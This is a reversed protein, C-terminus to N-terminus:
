AEPGAFLEEITMRRDTLGQQHVYGILTELNKRNADSLGYEWPDDGLLAREEEWATRYFALPVIRPNTLRRYAIKKAEDFAKILSDVVWPHEDVIEQRITTVHMIPFIGTAKYYAIEVDKYNPWLRGIRADGETIGRAVNPSIIADLDGNALMDDLDQDKGIREVKLDSHYEFDGDEDRETVWTISSHPVGYDNELIGRAWLNGAPAFNTGGIRKGILDKPSEIGKSKNIFVFGHRFRRHLFIPLATLAHGRCKNGMYAGANFEGLDAAERIEPVHIDRTGPFSLFELDIGEVEVEGERLARVIEYQGTLAKIKVKAM